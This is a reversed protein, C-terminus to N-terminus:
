HSEALLVCVKTILNRTVADAARLAHIQVDSRTPPGFVETSGSRRQLCRDDFALGAASTKRINETLTDEGFILSTQVKRV